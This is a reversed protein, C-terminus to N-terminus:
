CPGHIRWIGDAADPGIGCVALSIESKTTCRGHCSADSCRGHASSRSDCRCRERRRRLLFRFGCLSSVGYVLPPLVSPLIYVGFGLSVGTPYRGVRARFPSKIPQSNPPRCGYFVVHAARHPVSRGGSEVVMKVFVM